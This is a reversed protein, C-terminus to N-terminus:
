AVGAFILAFKITNALSHAIITVWLNRGTRLYIVGLVLAMLAMDIMGVPGWDFHAVGFLLASGAVAFAWRAKFGQFVGALSNIFFGRFVMEEGFAVVTWAGLTMALFLPLNGVMPNYDSQDSPPLELGPINMLIVQFAVTTAILALLAGIALGITKPWSAPRALGLERWGSGQSRLVVTAIVIALLYALNIVLGSTFSTDTGLSEGIFGVTVFPVLVALIGLAQGKKGSGFTRTGKQRVNLTVNSIM